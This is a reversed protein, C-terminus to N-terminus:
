QRIDIPTQGQKLQSRQGYDDLDDIGSFLNLKPDIKPNQIGIWNAVGETFNLGSKFSTYEHRETDDDSIKFLPVSYYGLDRSSGPDNSLIIQKATNKYGLGHDSFYILSFKRNTQKKNEELINFIENLFKDTKAISSIYCNLYHYKPNIDKDSIIKKFDSIRNCSNPHSGYIHIIFFRKKNSSKQLSKSIHPLLKFDSEIKDHSAVSNVFYKYQSKNAIATIPTDFRGIFGQNSLWHTEIGASNAMSVIDLGYNHKWNKKDAKTLMFRLSGITYGGSAFLGNVLTGKSNSMFPTNPIPYGYAHMYDTRVSEGIVLVYDDYQSNELTSKGWESKQTAAKLMDLDAQVKKYESFSKHFFDFPILHWFVFCTSAILFTRNRLLNIKRLIFIKRIVFISLFVIVAYLYNKLPILSLFESAESSDTALFSMMHQYKPSGFSLGVPLYLSYIAIIPVAILWFSYKSSILYALFISFLLVQYISPSPFLGTGRLTLKSIIILSICSTIIWIM